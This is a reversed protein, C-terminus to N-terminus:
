RIMGGHYRLEYLRQGALNHIYEMGHFRDTGGTSEDVYVLEGVRHTWGGLFRGERYMETLSIKIIRGATVADIRQPDLLYGYYNMAWVPRQEYHVAEEGIFDAGGFYSDHYSFGGAHFRLDKSGVRSPVGPTGDGVYTTAKAHVILATLDESSFM